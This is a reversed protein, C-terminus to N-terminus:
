ARRTWRVFRWLAVIFTSPLALLSLFSWGFLTGSIDGVWGNCQFGGFGFACHRETLSWTVLTLACVLVFIGISVLPFRAARSPDHAM